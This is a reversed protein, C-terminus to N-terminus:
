APKSVLSEVEDDSLRRFCRRGNSRSLVAAEVESSPIQRDPGALAGM